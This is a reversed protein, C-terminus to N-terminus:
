SKASLTGHTTHPGYLKKNILIQQFISFVSTVLWYLTLASPFRPFIILTLLPGLYVMYRGMKQSQSIAEGAKPKPLALKSQFYQAIATLVVIIMNPKALDMLGLFTTNFTAPAAVFSYLQNLTAEGFGSYFLQSVAILIPLQILLYGFSSFPNIKNKKYIEMVVLAQKERDGKHEAQARQIEPQIRQMMSQSKLGKYFVPYLILRILITLIIIAIGLDGFSVYNYLIVLANALPQTLILHFLYTM